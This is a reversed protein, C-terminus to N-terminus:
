EANRVAACLVFRVSVGRSLFDNGTCTVIKEYYVGGNEKGERGAM